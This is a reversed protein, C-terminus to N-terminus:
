NERKVTELNGRVNNVGGTQQTAHTHLLQLSLLHSFKHSTVLVDACHQSPGHYPVRTLDHSVIHIKEFFM